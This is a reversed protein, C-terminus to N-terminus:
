RAVASRRCNGSWRRKWCVAAIAGSTAAADAVCAVIEGYPTRYAFAGNATPVLPGQPHIETDVWLIDKSELDVAWNGLYLCSGALSLAGHIAGPPLDDAGVVGSVAGESNMAILRQDFDFGIVQEQWIAPRNSIVSLARGPMLASDAREKSITGIPLPSKVFWVTSEKERPIAIAYVDDSEETGKKKKPSGSTLLDAHTASSKRGNIEVDYLDLTLRRGYWGNDTRLDVIAVQNNLYAATGRGARVSTLEKARPADLVLAPGDLQPVIALDEALLGHLGFTGRLNKGAKFKSGQLSYRRFSESTLVSVTNQWVGIWYGDSSRLSSRAIVKGDAAELAILEVKKGTQVVAFVVGDWVVLDSRVRDFEMRWTEKPAVTVGELDVFSDGYANAHPQHWNRGQPASSPVAAIAASAASAVTAALSSSTFLVALAILAFTRVARPMALLTSGTTSFRSVFSFRLQLGLFWLRARPNSIPALRKLCAGM